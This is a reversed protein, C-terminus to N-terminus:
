VFSEINPWNDDEIIHEFEKFVEMIKHKEYHRKQAERNKKKFEDDDKLSQYRKRSYQLARLKEKDTRYTDGREIKSIRREEKRKEAHWEIQRATNRKGTKQQLIDKWEKHYTQIYERICDKCRGKNKYFESIPKEQGCKSCTKTEM